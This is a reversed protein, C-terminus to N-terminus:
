STQAAEVTIKVAVKEEAMHEDLMELGLSAHKKM